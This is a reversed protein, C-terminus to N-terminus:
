FYLKENFTFYLINCTGTPYDKTEKCSVIIENDKFGFFDRINPPLEDYAWDQIPIKKNLNNIEDYETIYFWIGNVYQWQGLNSIECMLGYFNIENTNSRLEKTFMQEHKIGQLIAIFKCLNKIQFISLNDVFM